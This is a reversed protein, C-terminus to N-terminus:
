NQIIPFKSIDVATPPDVNVQFIADNFDNDGSGVPQDDFCLVLSNCTPEYLVVNQRGNQNFEFNSYHAGIGETITGNQWGNSNLFFGIVTNAKFHGYLEVTNGVFLGGGSGQLSANPYVILKAIDEVTTPPNDANYYYYGLVNKYGAGEHVFSISVDADEEIYINTPVDPAFYEPHNAVANVHEPLAYNFVNSLLFDCVDVQSINEPVGQNDYVSIPLYDGPQPRRLIKTGGLGKAILVWEQNGDIEIFNASAPAEDMDWTFVLQPETGNQPLTFVALGDAGNAVYIFKDDSTVGNTNGDTLMGAPSAWTQDGTNIDFAALGNKAMTVLVEDPNQETFHLVSKGRSIADVSQHLIEGIPYEDNFHFDGIDEVRLTGETGTQLSVVKTAADPAGNVDIYKGNQFESKGLVELTAADLCFVGGHTKGSSVYLYDGSFVVSNASSTIVEQELTNSLNLVRYDTNDNGVMTVEAVVAGKKADSLSLWVKIENSGPLQGVEVANIDADPLYIGFVVQPNVPDSLDVVELAGTHDAGRMHYSIYARDQYFDIHTASLTEGNIVYPEIEGVHVWFYDAYEESNRTTVQGAVLSDGGNLQNELIVAKNVKTFRDSFSASSLVQFDNPSVESLHANNKNPPAINDKKCSQTLMLMVGVLLLYIMVRNQM